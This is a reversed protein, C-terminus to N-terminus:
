MMFYGKLGTRAKFDVKSKYTRFLLAEPRGIHISEAIRIIISM